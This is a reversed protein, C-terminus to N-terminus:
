DKPIDLGATLETVLGVMNKVLTDGVDPRFPFTGRMRPVFYAPYSFHDGDVSYRDPTPIYGLFDNSYGTVLVQLGPLMEKVQEGLSLFMEGGHAVIVINQILMAQIETARNNPESSDFHQLIAHASAEEFELERRTDQQLSPDKLLTRATLLEHVLLPRDSPVLPLRVEASRSALRTVSIPSATNLGKEVYAAFRTSLDDLMQICQPPPLLNEMQYPNLDGCSGQLYIGVAGPFEKEVKELAVGTLDKTYEHMNESFLVNHVSYHVIFGALKKDHTFKLVQLEKDVPGDKYERNQAIHDVPVVGYSLTVPELNRSASIIAAALKSPLLNVYAPDEEGLGILEVVAPASHTHTASVLINSGPIGTRQAVENRVEAVAVPDVALLDCGVIALREGELELVVAHAQLTDHVTTARRGRFPGFGAMERGVPPTIDIEAFGARLDAHVVVPGGPEAAAGKTARAGAQGQVVQAIILLLSLSALAQVILQVSVERKTHSM